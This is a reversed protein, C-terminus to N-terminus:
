PETSSACFASSLRISQLFHILQRSQLPQRSQRPQRPQLPQLSQWSQRSQRPQRSQLPQRSATLLPTELYQNILELRKVYQNVEHTPQATYLPEYDALKPYDLPYLLHSWDHPKNQTIEYYQRNEYINNVPVRQMDDSIAVAKYRWAVPEGGECKLTLEAKLKLIEVDRIELSQLLRKLTNDKEELLAKIDEVMENTIDTM